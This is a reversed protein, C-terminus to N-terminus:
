LLSLSLDRIHQNRCSHLICIGMNLYVIDHFYRLLGYHATCNRETYHQLKICRLLGHSDRDTRLVHVDYYSRPKGYCITNYGYSIRLMVTSIRLTVTSIRLTVTSVRKEGHWCTSIM